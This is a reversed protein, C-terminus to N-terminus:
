IVMTFESCGLREVLRDVLRIIRWVIFFFMSFFNVKQNILIQECWNNLCCCCVHNFFDETM